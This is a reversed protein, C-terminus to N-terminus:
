VKTDVKQIRTEAGCNVCTMLGESEPFTMGGVAGCVCCKVRIGTHRWDEVEIVDNLDCRTCSIHYTARNASGLRTLVEDFRAVIRDLVASSAVDTGLEAAAATALERKLVADSRIHRALDTQTLKKLHPM